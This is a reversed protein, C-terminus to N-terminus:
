TSEIPCGQAYGEEGPERPKLIVPLVDSALHSMFQPLTPIYKSCAPCGPAMAKRGHVKMDATAEDIYGWTHRLFEHRAEDLTMM